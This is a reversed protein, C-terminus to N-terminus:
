MPLDLQEARTWSILNPFISKSEGEGVESLSLYIRSGAIAELAAGVVEHNTFADAPLLATKTKPDIFKMMDSVFRKLTADDRIPYYKFIKRNKSGKLPSVIDNGRDDQEYAVGDEVVSFQMMIQPAGDKKAKKFCAKDLSCLYYGPKLDSFGSSEATIGSLDTNKVVKDFSSFVDTLDVEEKEAM